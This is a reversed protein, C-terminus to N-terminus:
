QGGRGVFMKEAPMCVRDPKSGSKYQRHVSAESCEFDSNGLILHSPKLRLERISNLEPLQNETIIIDIIPIITLYKGSRASKGHWTPRGRVHRRRSAFETKLGGAGM